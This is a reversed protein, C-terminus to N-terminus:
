LPIFSFNIFYIVYIISLLCKKCFYSSIRIQMDETTLVGANYFTILRHSRTLGPSNKDIEVVRLGALSIGLSRCSQWLPCTYLTGGQKLCSNSVKVYRPSVANFCLSRTKLFPSEAIVLISMIYFLMVFHSNNYTYPKVLFKEVNIVSIKHSLCLVWIEEYM